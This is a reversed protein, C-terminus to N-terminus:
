EDPILQDTLKVHIGEGTRFGVRSYYGIMHKISSFKENNLTVYFEGEKYICFHLIMKGKVSCLWNHVGTVIYMHVLMCDCMSM